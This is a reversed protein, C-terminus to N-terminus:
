HVEQSADASAQQRARRPSGAGLVVKHYPGVDTHIHEMRYYTMTVGPSNGRLWRIVEAKRGRPAVFDFAKGFRHMSPMRTGAITAGRRCTSVVRVAGFQAELQALLATAASTLCSRSTTGTIRGVGRGTRVRPDVSAYAQLTGPLPIACASNPLSCPISASVVAHRRASRRHRTARRQAKYAQVNKAKEVIPFDPGAMAAPPIAVAFAAIGIAAVALRPAQRKTDEMSSM